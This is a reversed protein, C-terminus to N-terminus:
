QLAKYLKSKYVSEPICTDGDFLNVVVWASLVIDKVDPLVYVTSREILRVEGYGTVIDQYKSSFYVRDGKKM